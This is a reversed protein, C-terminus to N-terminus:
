GGQVKGVKLKSWDLGHKKAYAKAWREKQHDKLEVLFRATHIWENDMIIAHKIGKFAAM